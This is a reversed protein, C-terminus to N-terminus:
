YREQAQRVVIDVRRALQHRRERPEIDRLEAFRSDALGYAAVRRSYGAARLLAAVSRARALSLDWNSDYRAGSVPEPDTHGYIDIRNGINRFVAALATVAKRAPPIPSAEGSRFLLESPLAIVLRDGLNHLVVGTLSPEQAITGALLTELYDLDIARAQARQRINSEASPAREVHERTPNLSQSLSKVLAEWAGHEVKQTAYIMVFFALLLAILDAFTILWSTGYAARDRGNARSFASRIVSM